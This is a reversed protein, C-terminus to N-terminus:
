KRSKEVKELRRRSKVPNKLNECIQGPKKAKPFKEVGLMKKLM